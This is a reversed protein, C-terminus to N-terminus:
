RRVYWGAGVTGALGLAGLVHILKLTLLLTMM